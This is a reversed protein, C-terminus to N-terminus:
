RNPVNWVELNPISFINCRGNIQEQPFIQMMLWNCWLEICRPIIQMATLGATRNAM